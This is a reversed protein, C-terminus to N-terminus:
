NREVVMKLKASEFLGKPSVVPEDLPIADGYREKVLSRVRTDSLDFDGLRELTSIEIGLARNYIKWVLESCYIARDDWNFALDYKKGIYRAGERKLKAAANGTILKDADVLRRIVYHANKGRRIFDTLPTYRVPQVAEEVYWGGKMRFIIGVHTYRSKTAIKLASSQRSLSEQFIIDGDRIKGSDFLPAGESTGCAILILILILLCYYRM